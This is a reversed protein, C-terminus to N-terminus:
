GAVGPGARCSRQKHLDSVCRLGERIVALFERHGHALLYKSSLAGALLCGSRQDAGHQRAAVIVRQALVGGDLSEFDQAAALGGCWHRVKEDPPRETESPCPRPWEESIQPQHAGPRVAPGKPEVVLDTKSTIPALPPVPSAVPDRWKV